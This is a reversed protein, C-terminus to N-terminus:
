LNLCKCERQQLHKELRYSFPILLCSPCRKDNLVLIVCVELISPAVSGAAAPLGENQISEAFNMASHELRCSLFIVM